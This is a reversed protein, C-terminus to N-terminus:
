AAIASVPLAADPLFRAFATLAHNSGEAKASSFAVVGTSKRNEVRNTCGVDRPIL